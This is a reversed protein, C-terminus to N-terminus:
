LELAKEFSMELLPVYHWLMVKDLNHMKCKLQFEHKKITQLNTSTPRTVLAVCM